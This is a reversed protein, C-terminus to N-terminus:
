PVPLTLCTMGVQASETLARVRESNPQNSSPKPEEVSYVQRNQELQHVGREDNEEGTSSWSNRIAVLFVTLSDDLFRALVPAM